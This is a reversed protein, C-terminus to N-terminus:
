IICMLLWVCYYYAVDAMPGPWALVCLTLIVCAAFSIRCLYYYCLLLIFVFISTNIICLLFLLIAM